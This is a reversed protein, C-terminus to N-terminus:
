HLDTPPHVRVPAGGSMNSIVRQFYLYVFGFECIFMYVLVFICFKVFVFPATHVSVPAGGGMNSIAGERAM